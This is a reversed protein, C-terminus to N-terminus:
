AGSREWRRRLLGAVFRSIGPRVFITDVIEPGAEAGIVRKYGSDGAGWDVREIGDEIARILNRYYLLKGPSHKGVVPDYSNAIAHKLAGLNMDFSFAMPRGDIRLLAVWMRAAIGPDAAALRWFPGHGGPTFKADGGDTREAIWSRQEIDALDDFLASTWDAGTHFSWTLAGHAGLHKEHFRNKKLTSSRPWAGEAQQAPIDLWFSTAVARDMRMWGSRAAADSLMALGPDDGYVPGIRLARATRGLEALLADAEATHLDPALPVSRYPWYCGPVAVAGLLPPGLTVVPLAAVPQGGRTVLVTRPAREGYADVAAAFWAQRLFARGPDGRAAIADIMPSIGAVTQAIGAIDFEQADIPRSMPM